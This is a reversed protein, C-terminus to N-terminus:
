DKLRFLNYVYYALSAVIILVGSYLIVDYSDSESYSKASYSIVSIIAGVLLILFTNKKAIIRENSLWEEKYTKNEPRCHVLADYAERSRYFNKAKNLSFALMYQFVELIRMKEDSFKYARFKAEMAELYVYLENYKDQKFLSDAYIEVSISYALLVEQDSDSNLASDVLEKNALFLEQRKDLDFFSLLEKKLEELKNYSM